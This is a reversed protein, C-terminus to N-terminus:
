FLVIVLENYFYHIIMALITAPVILKLKKQSPLLIVVATLIHLSTTLLFRQWFSSLIGDTIFNTSYFINESFAFLFTAMLTITLQSKYRSTKLIALILIAKAIEEIIYPYPAIHEIPILVLPLILAVLCILFIMSKSYCFDAFIEGTPLSDQSAPRASLPPL